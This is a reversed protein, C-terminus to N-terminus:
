EKESEFDKESTPNGLEELFEQIDFDSTEVTSQKKEEASKGKDVELAKEDIDSPPATTTDIEKKDIGENSVAEETPLELDEEEEDRSKFEVKEEDPEKREETSPSGAPDEELFKEIDFDESEGTDGDSVKENVEETSTTSVVPEKGEDVKVGEKFESPVDLDAEKKEESEVKEEVLEKSEGTPSMGVPVEELFKEIDFDGSEGKSVAEEVGVTTTTSGAPGKEEDVEVDERDKSPVDLDKGKKENAVTKSEESPLVDFSDEGMQLSGALEELADKDEVSTEMDRKKKEIEDKEEALEDLEETSPTGAPEEEQITQIDSGVPGGMNEGSSVIKDTQEKEKLKELVEKRLSNEREEAVTNISDIHARVTESVRDNIKNSAEQIKVDIVDEIKNLVNKEVAEVKSILGEVKATVEGGVGRLDAEIKAAVEGKVVKLDAEIKATVEDKVAKLDAEIKEYNVAPQSDTEVEPVSTSEGKSIETGSSEDDDFFDGVVDSTDRKERSSDDSPKATQINKQKGSKRSGLVRNLLLAVILIIFMAVIIVLRLNNMLDFGDVGAIQNM